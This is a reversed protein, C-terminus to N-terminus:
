ATDPMITPILRRGNKRYIRFHHDLTFVPADPYLEAMRVLCADALSMPLDEYKQALKGLAKQENMLDFEVSIAGSALLEFFRRHGTRLRSLLHFAETLVPECTILPPQLSRFQEVVWAHHVEKKNLFAVLPGTDVIVRADPM